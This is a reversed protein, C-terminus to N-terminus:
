RNNLRPNNYKILGPKYKADLYLNGSSVTINNRMVTLIV